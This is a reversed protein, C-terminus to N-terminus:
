RFIEKASGQVKVRLNGIVRKLGGDLIHLFVHHMQDIRQLPFRFVVLAFLSQGQAGEAYPQIQRLHLTAMAITSANVRFLNTIGCRSRTRDERV